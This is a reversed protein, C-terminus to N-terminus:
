QKISQFSYTKRDYQEIQKIDANPNRLYDLLDRDKFFFKFGEQGDSKTKFIVKYIQSQQDM